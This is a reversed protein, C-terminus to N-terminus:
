SRGVRTAEQPARARYRRVADRNACAHTCYRQRGPRSFDVFAHRCDAGACRGVRHMGRDCLYQAAAATTAGALTPGFGVEPDRFHLHWGSGDHDTISPPATYCALMRNLSEVRSTPDAASM